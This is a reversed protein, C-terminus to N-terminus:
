NKIKKVLFIILLIAIVLMLTSPIVMLLEKIGFRM